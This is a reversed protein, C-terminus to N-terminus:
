RTLISILSIIVSGLSIFLGTNKNYAADQSTAKNPEVYVVDNQQLYYAPSNFIKNSRLDLKYSKIQNNEERKVEIIRIGSMNLDGALGIAELVSIRENPITFRGPNKVDGLVTVSFNTIKINITPNKIYDPSLKSKLLDIAETRSLGALKIQGLVPFDIFGNSDILYSQQQPTGVARDTTASFTVAPLNFPKVAELDLASITIQLLDDAKFITKYATNTKSQNVEDNQFYVIDKKSACSTITLIIIALVIKTVRQM